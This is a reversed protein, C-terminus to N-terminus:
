APRGPRWTQGALWPFRKKKTDRCGLNLDSLSGANQKELINRMKVDGKNVPHDDVGETCRCISMACVLSSFCPFPTFLPLHVGAGIWRDAVRTVCFTELVLFGPYVRYTEEMNQGQIVPLIWLGDEFSRFRLARFETCVCVSSEQGFIRPRSNLVHRQASKFSNACAGSAVSDM